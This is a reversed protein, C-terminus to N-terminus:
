IIGTVTKQNLYILTIRLNNVDFDFDIKITGDPNRIKTVAATNLPEAFQIFTGTRRVLGNGRGKGTIEHIYFAGSGNGGLIDDEEYAGVIAFEGDAALSSGYRDNDGSGIVNPNLIDNIREGDATDFVYVRGTDTIGAIDEQHASAMFFYDSVAVKYGFFDNADPVYANPNVIEYIPVNPRHGKIDYIYIRGSGAGTLTEYNPAGIIAFENSMDMSLGFMDTNNNNPNNITFLHDGTAVEFVYVADQTHTGVMVYVDNISVVDGFDQGTAVPNELIWRPKSLDALDYIYAKGTPDAKPAGVVLHTESLAVSYGFWDEADGISIDPNTLTNTPAGTMATLSYVYARGSKNGTAVADDDRWSGIAVWNSNIAVSAGFHDDQADGVARPNVIKQIQTGTSDYLYASGASAEGSASAEKPAGIISIGNAVDASYGFNYGVMGPTPNPVQATTTVTTTYNAVFITEEDSNGSGLVTFDTNGTQIIQYEVGKVIRNASVEEGIGVETPNSIFTYDQNPTFFRQDVFVLTNNPDLENDGDDLIDTLPGFMVDQKDFGSYFVENTIFTPQDYGNLRWVGDQFFEFNMLDTNYRVYGEVGIPREATTGRPVLMVTGDFSTIQTLPDYKLGKGTIVRANTTQNKILRM